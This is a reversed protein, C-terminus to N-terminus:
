LIRGTLRGRIGAPVHHGDDGCLFADGREGHRLHHSPKIGGFGADPGLDHHHLAWQERDHDPQHRDTAVVPEPGAAAPGGSRGCRREAFHVSDARQTARHGRDPREGAPDGGGSGSGAVEAALEPRRGCKFHRGCPNHRDLAGTSAARQQHPQGRPILVLHLLQHHRQRYRRGEREIFGLGAFVVGSNHEAGVAAVHFCGGATAAPGAARAPGPGAGLNRGDGHRGHRLEGWQHQGAFEGALEAERRTYGTTNANAVNNAVISLAAQDANLAGSILHFASSITGM